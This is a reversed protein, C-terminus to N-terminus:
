EGREHGIDAKRELIQLAYHVQAASIGLRRSMERVSPSEKGLRECLLLYAQVMASPHTPIM